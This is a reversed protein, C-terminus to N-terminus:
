TKPKAALLKIVNDAAQYGSVRYVAKSKLDAILLLPVSQIGYRHIEEDTSRQAPVGVSFEEPAPADDVQRAEVAFGLDHLRAVEPAMRRCHPCTSEFYFRVVFQGPIVEAIKPDPAVRPGRPSVGANGSARGGLFEQMRGQLRSAVTNKAEIYTFWHRLNEDSPNRAVAMFPAPPTYDGERFFEDHSPDLYRSWDFETKRPDVAPPPSVQQREPRGARWYDLGGDFYAVQAIALPPQLGCLAAIALQMVRQPKFM